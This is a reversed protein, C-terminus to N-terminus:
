KLECLDNGDSCDQKFKDMASRQKRTCIGVVKKFASQPCMEHFAEAEKEQDSTGHDDGGGRLRV